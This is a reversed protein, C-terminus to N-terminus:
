PRAGQSSRKGPDPPFGDEDIVIRGIAGGLDGALDRGAVGAHADDAPEAPAAQRGGADFADHRRGRGVKRDDIAIELVVLGHEGGHQALQLDLIEIEDDAAAIEIALAALPETGPALPDAAGTHPHRMQDQAGIEGIRHAAEEDHRAGGEILLDM